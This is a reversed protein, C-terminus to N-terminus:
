STVFDIVEQMASPNDNLYSFIQHPSDEVTFAKSDRASNILKEIAQPPIVEDNEALVIRVVGEFKSLISFSDSELYSKSRFIAKKFEPGFPLKYVRPAYAAPAILILKKIDFIETLKIATYASMSAGVVALNDHDCCERIFRVAQKTRDELSSGLLEGGTDGHGIFDFAATPTQRESLALRLKRYRERNGSGAGHLIVWSPKSGPPMVDGVLHTGEYPVRIM